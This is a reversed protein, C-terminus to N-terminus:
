RLVQNIQGLRFAGKLRQRQRTGPRPADPLEHGPAAIFISQAVGPPHVLPLVRLFGRARCGPVQAIEIRHVAVPIQGHRRVVAPRAVHLLADLAGAVRIEPLQVLAVHQRALSFVIHRNDHGQRQDGFVRRVISNLGIGLRRHRDVHHLRPAGNIQAEHRFGDVDIHLRQASQIRRQQPQRGRVIRGELQM